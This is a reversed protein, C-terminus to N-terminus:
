FNFGASLTFCGTHTDDFADQGVNALGIDYAAEAYFASVSFGIGLRLGGDFRNFYGNSYSSFAERAGYDKIQGGVGCALYGGASPEISMGNALFYRYKLM